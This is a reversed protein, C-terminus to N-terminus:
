ARTERDAAWRRLEVDERAAVARVMVEAIFEADTPPLAYVHIQRLRKRRHRARWGPPLPGEPWRPYDPHFYVVLTVGGRANTMNQRIGALPLAYTRVLNQVVLHTPTLTVSARRLLLMLLVGGFAGLAFLPSALPYRVAGLVAAVVLALALGGIALRAVTPLQRTRTPEDV